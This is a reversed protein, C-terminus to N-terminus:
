ILRLRRQVLGGERKYSHRLLVSPPLLLYRGPEAM